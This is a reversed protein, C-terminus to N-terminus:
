SQGSRHRSEHSYECDASLPQKQSRIGAGLQIINGVSAKTLTYQYVCKHLRDSPRPHQGRTRVPHAQPVPFPIIFRACVQPDSHSLLAYWLACVPLITPVTGPCIWPLPQCHRVHQIISSKFTFLSQKSSPFAFPM